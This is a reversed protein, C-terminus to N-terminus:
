ASVELLTPGNYGDELFLADLAERKSASLPGDFIAEFRLFSSQLGWKKMLVSEAQLEPKPLRGRSKKAL